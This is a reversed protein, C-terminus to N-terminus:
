RNYIPMMDLKGEDHRNNLPTPYDMCSIAMCELHAENTQIQSKRIFEDLQTNYSASLVHLGSDMDLIIITFADILLWTKM